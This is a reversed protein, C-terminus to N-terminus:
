ETSSSHLFSFLIFFTWITFFSSGKLIITFLFDEFLGTIIPAPGAPKNEANVNAWFPIFGIIISCPFVTSSRFFSTSSNWFVPFSFVNDFTWNPSPPAPVKESPLNVLPIWLGKHM